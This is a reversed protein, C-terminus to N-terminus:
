RQRQQYCKAAPRCVASLVAVTQPESLNRGTLEIDTLSCFCSRPKSVIDSTRAVSSVTEFIECRQHSTAAKLIWDELASRVEVRLSTVFDDTRSSELVRAFLRLAEDSVSRAKLGKLVLTWYQKNEIATGGISKPLTSDLAEVIFTQFLSSRKEDVIRQIASFLASRASINRWAEAHSMIYSALVSRTLKKSETDSAELADVFVQQM